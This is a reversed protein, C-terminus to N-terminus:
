ALPTERSLVYIRRVVEFNMVVAIVFLTALPLNAIAGLFILFVRVDRGLRFRASRGNRAMMLGDYRQASYSNMFSGIIAAFGLALAAHSSNQLYVHWTLGFLLFADAYRDLVADFWGGFDSHMRKLRAVEGDCGDVISAIQAAIGGLALAVYGGMAFALAGLCSLVMSLFSIQNPTLPTGVLYRTLLRSVPRNLHGAVPGDSPKTAAARLLNVETVKLAEPTDVDFWPCGTVDVAYARGALSLETIGASLGHAGQACARELGEFLGSTCLFVGTDVADSNELHKGIATIKSGNLCVRTADDFDYIGQKDRDVALSIGGVPPPARCLRRGIEHDFVHDVMALFFVEAEIHDKTARASAGNGLRWEAAEVYAIELDRRPAIQQFHERVRNADHGLVVLFRRIGLDESFTTLTREALSLGLLMTMPKSTPTLSSLRTGAGAALIVALEPRATRADSMTVESSAYSRM